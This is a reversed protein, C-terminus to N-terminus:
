GGLGKLLTIGDRFLLGAFVLLMAGLSRMVWRYTTGALFRRSKGVLLALLLKSGILCGSFAAVFSVAAMPALSWGKLITPAGVAIWFLYPHPSLLNTLIGRSLSKPASQTDIDCEGGSRFTGYAMTLLFVGGGLSIFGLLPKFQAIRTLLLTTLLIIPLDTILPAFAVKCGERIGHRLTQSLVLAFLPGPSFGASIGLLVGAGLYAM